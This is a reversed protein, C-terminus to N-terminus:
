FHFAVFGFRHVTVGRPQQSDRQDQADSKEGRLSGPVPVPVFGVLLMALNAVDAVDRNRLGDRLDRQQCRNWHRAERRACLLKNSKFGKRGM